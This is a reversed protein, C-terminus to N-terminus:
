IKLFKRLGDTLIGLGIATFFNIAFRTDKTDNKPFLGSLSDILLPDNLRANLKKVGMFESLEQFLNKIFVRSSSTTDNENLKIVSLTDWSIADTCLLHAFFKSTNRLRNSDLRHCTNYTDQFINEFSKVYITNIQCFRQALLGYFKEYTRQEACTDLFMHCLEVEQGNEIEIKLLKHACEEYNLSSTITLYIRRRLAILVAGTNDIIDSKSTGVKNDDENDNDNDDDEDGDDDDEDEDEDSDSNDSSDSKLLIENCLTKYKQENEQYKEDFQFVNLKDETDFEDLLEISHTFQDDEDVIDLSEVISPHDKFGDKRIQFIVEIMYQIRTDLKGEHLINRLIEFISELCRPSVERLKQGCEKLFAIAVEISDNTPNEVLLTLIELAIIEHAVRQNVLHGIFSTSSICLSKQNRRYSRKFQIILRKLLLEGTRPFKLNIIAVLAAYVNTFTPSAAQAQIISKCLLGKGRIVNEKLLEKAIQRINSINVKNILGHISKKLAEWALKQFALSNKDTISEQLKRLKAPPIYAGGTKSYVDLNRKDSM